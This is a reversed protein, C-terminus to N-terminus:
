ERNTRKIRGFRRHDDFYHLSLTKNLLFLSGPIFSFFFLSDHQYHLWMQTMVWLVVKDGFCLVKISTQHQTM